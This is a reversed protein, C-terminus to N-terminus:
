RGGTAWMGMESVWSPSKPVKLPSFPISEAEVDADEEGEMGGMGQVGRMGLLGMVNAVERDMFDRSESMSVPIVGRENYDSRGDTKSRRMPVVSISDCDNSDGDGHAFGGSSGAAAAAAATAAAVAAAAEIRGEGDRSRRGSGAWSTRVWSSVSGSLRSGSTGSQTRSFMGAWTASLSPSSSCPPSSGSVEPAFDFLSDVVRPLPSPLPSKGDGSKLRRLHKKLSFRGSRSHNSNGGEADSEAQSKVRQLLGGGGGGSSSEAGSETFLRSPGDRSVDQNVSPDRSLTGNQKISGDRSMSGYQQKLSSERSTAANHKLSGDCSMTGGGGGDLGWMNGGRGYSGDRPLATEFLRLSFGGGLWGDQSGRPITREVADAEALKDRGASSSRGFLRDRFGRRKTRPDGGEPETEAEPEEWVQPDPSLPQAMDFHYATRTVHEFDTDPEPFSHPLLPSFPRIHTYRPTSSQSPLQTPQTRSRSLPPYAMEEESSNAKSGELGGSGEEEEAVVAKVSVAECVAGASPKLRGEGVSRSRREVGRRREGGLERGAGGERLEGDRAEKGGSESGRASTDVEGGRKSETARRAEARERARRKRMARIEQEMEKLAAREGGEQEEEGGEQRKNSKGPEGREPQVGQRQVEELGQGSGRGEEGGTGKMRERTEVEERVGLKGSQGMGKRREKGGDEKRESKPQMPELAGKAWEREMLSSGRPTRPVGSAAKRLVRPPAQLAEVAWEREMISSGRPTRPQASVTRQLQRQQMKQQRKESFSDAAQICLGEQHQPAEEYKEGGGGRERDPPTAAEATKSESGADAASAAIEGGASLATAAASAAERAAARAAARERLSMSRQLLLRVRAHQQGEEQEQKGGQGPQQGQQWSLHQETEQGQQYQWQEEQEQQKAQEQRQQQHQKQQQRQQLSWAEMRCSLNGGMSVAHRLEFREVEEGEGLARVQRKGRGQQVKNESGSRRLRQGLESGARLASTADCVHLASTADGVHVASTADSASLDEFVSRAPKLAGSGKRLGRPTPATSVSGVNQCRATSGKPTPPTLTQTSEFASAARSSRRSGRPTPPTLNSGKARSGRPTPASSQFLGGGEHGILGEQDGFVDWASLRPKRGRERVSGGRSSGTGVSTTTAHQQSSYEITVLRETSSTRARRMCYRGGSRASTSDVPSQDTQAQKQQQGQQQQQRRRPAEGQEIRGGMTEARRMEGGQEEGKGAVESAVPGEAPPSAHSTLREVSSTRSRRM